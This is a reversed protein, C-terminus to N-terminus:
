PMRSWSLYWARRIADELQRVAGRDIWGTAFDELEFGYTGGARAPPRFTLTRTVPLLVDPNPPLAGGVELARELAARGARHARLVDEPSAAAGPRVEVRIVDPEAGHSRLMWTGHDHELAARVFLGRLVLVADRQSRWFKQWDDYSAWGKKKGDRAVEQTDRELEWKWQEYKSWGQRRKVYWTPQIAGHDDCVAAGDCWSAATYPQLVRVLGEAEAMAGIRSLIMTVAHADPDLLTPLAREILLAEAIASILADRGAPPLGRTPGRTRV